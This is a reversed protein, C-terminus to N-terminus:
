QAGLPAAPSRGRWLLSLVGCHVTYDSARYIAGNRTPACTRFRLPRSMETPTGVAAAPAASLLQGAVVTSYYDGLIRRPTLTHLM